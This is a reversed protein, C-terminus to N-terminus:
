RNKESWYLATGVARKWDELRRAREEAPMQPAYSETCHWGRATEQLSSYVGLAFGALLAAGLATTEAVAPRQIATGLIDSQFQMLFHNASAGGDVRLVSPPTECDISMADFLDKSQFAISELVARVLHARNTGRTIGTLTGRAYMDWYPAGLGTFAPVLYVGNTDPVTKAIEETEEARSIIKMEDRLWQVTAGGMFVSGEFAYTPKGNLRWAMTTLLRNSSLRFRDGANMLMFCGTGYTNKVMGEEFCAQGFLAAHQDGAIAAVPIPEGLIDTHLDGIYAASDIVRPLIQRPIDLMKLLDEDWDQRQLHYLMTRSANTADTVHPHGDVLNWCLFTDITGFCIEGNKARERLSLTDLLWKIKTGAFYADPILGTKARIEESCGDQILRSVIPSTRRCQWVIANYLVAGTAREWLVTTERQNTIGIGAIEKPDIQAKRTAARMAEIQTNLIDSPDHEVWGPHPYHQPFEIAASAVVAGEFTFIIARSSTTGQDLAMLYRKNM